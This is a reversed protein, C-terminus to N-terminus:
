QPFVVVFPFTGHSRWVVPGLGVQTARVADDGREDGGHLYVIVPWSKDASWDKPLYVFYPAGADRRFGDRADPIFVHHNSCGALSLVLLLTSVLPTLCARQLTM